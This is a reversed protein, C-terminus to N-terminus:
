FVRVNSPIVRVSGHVRQDGELVDDCWGFKAISVRAAWWGHWLQGFAVKRMDLWTGTTRINVVQGTTASARTVCPRVKACKLWHSM